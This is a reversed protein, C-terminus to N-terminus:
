EFFNPSLVNAMNGGQFFIIISHIDFPKSSYTIRFLNEFSYISHLIDLSNFHWGVVCISTFDKLYM